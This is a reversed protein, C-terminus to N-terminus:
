RPTLRALFRVSSTQRQWPKSPAYRSAGSAAAARVHRRCPPSQEMGEDRRRGCQRLGPREEARGPNNKCVALRADREATHEAYYAVTKPPERQGCRRAAVLRWCPSVACPYVDM